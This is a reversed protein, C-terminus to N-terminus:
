PTPALETNTNIIPWVGPQPFSIGKTDAQQNDQGFFYVPWGRYTLQQQTGHVTIEGFDDSNMASPLADIDVHFIPWVDDNSFDEETFKNTDASDNVFVYLTRGQEDTYYTTLGEGEVYNGSEDIVYTNGDEGVLQQSAVMLSNNPKAVYWLGNVSDGTAEGPTEDGAFYYLPWGKYTTQDSGDPRSITGFDAPDIDGFSRLQGTRFAPWSTICDGECESEGTVDLAFYYLVNGEEDAFVQGHDPTQIAQIYDQPAETGGSGGLDCGALM